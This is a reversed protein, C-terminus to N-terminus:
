RLMTLAENRDVAAENWGVLHKEELHFAVAHDAFANAVAIEDHYIGAVLGLILVDDGGADTLFGRYLGVGLTTVGNNELRRVGLLSLNLNQWPRIEAHEAHNAAYEAGTEVRLLASGVLGSPCHNISWVAAWLPRKKQMKDQVCGLVM